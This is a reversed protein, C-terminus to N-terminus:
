SHSAYNKQLNFLIHNISLNFLLGSLPCGQKVGCLLPITETPGENSLIQTFTNNYIDRIIDVFDSDIGHNSLARFLVEHPISGFANSIDLWILFIDSHSRRALEMHQGIVFNHEVVGDFPTFGKQCNSIVGHTECWEQLTRTLCKTFLKYITSSLSIPRWNETISLDGKKPILVCSSQKWSPPIKKIKICINFIKSLIIGRPDIERWHKYTILDPGPASNECGQLCSFVMEPSLFDVVPPLDPPTVSPFDIQLSSPSWTKSFHESLKLKPIACRSSVPNQLNRVCRKRNWHYLKQVRQADQPDFPKFPRNNKSSNSAAPKSLKFHDQIVSVIDSVVSEFTPLINDIEDVDFLADLPEVFSNLLSPQELDLKEQLPVNDDDETQITSANNQPRALPTAGPHGESLDQIRKRRKKKTTSSSPPIILPTNKEVITQRKHSALHNRKAIASSASFDPCLDCVWVDDDIPDPPLILNNILCNHKSPLKSIKSDCITCFFEVKSPKSKHFVNLHKKLSSNTLYWLKTGFSASCNPVPCCLKKQLPFFYKLIKNEFSVFKVPNISSQTTSNTQRRAPHTQFDPDIESFSPPPPLTEPPSSAADSTPPPVLINNSLKFSVKKPMELDVTMPPPDEQSPLVDIAASLDALHSPPPIITFRHEKYFHLRLGSKKKAVFDCLNCLKPPSPQSAPKKHIEVSVQVEGAPPSHDPSNNDSITKSLNPLLCGKKVPNKKVKEPDPIYLQEIFAKVPSVLDTHDEVIPVIVNQSHDIIKPKSSIKLNIESAQETAPIIKSQFTQGSINLLLNHNTKIHEALSQDSPFYEQCHRCFFQYSPLNPFLCVNPPKKEPEGLSLIKRQYSTVPHVLSKRNPTKVSNKPPNQVKPESTVKKSSKSPINSEPALIKKKQIKQPNLSSKESNVSPEQNNPINTKIAAPNHLNLVHSDCTRQSYFKLECFPCKALVKRLAQAYTNKPFAPVTKVELPAPISPPSKTSKTPSSATSDPSLVDSNPSSALLLDLVDPSVRASPFSAVCERLSSVIPSLASDPLASNLIKEIESSASSNSSDDHARRQPKPDFFLLENEAPPVSSSDQVSSSSAAPSSPCRPSAISPAPSSLVPVVPVRAIPSPLSSCPLVVAPSASDAPRLSSTPPHFSSADPSSSYSPSKSYATTQIINQRTSSSNPLTSIPQLSSRSSLEKDIFSPRELIETVSTILKNITSLIDDDHPSGSPQSDFQIPPSVIPSVIPNSKSVFQSSSAESDFISHPDPNRLMEQSFLEPFSTKFKEFLSRPQTSSSVDPKPTSQYLSDIAELAKRRKTNSKHNIVHKRLRLPSDFQAPCIKCQGLEAARRFSVQSSFHRTRLAVPTTSKNLKNSFDTGQPPSDSSSSDSM